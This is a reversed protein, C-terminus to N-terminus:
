LQAMLKNYVFLVSYSINKGFVKSIHLASFIHGIPLLLYIALRWIPKNVIKTFIFINFFPILAKWGAYGAKGFIKFWSILYLIFTLGFFSALIIFILGFEKTKKKSKSEKDGVEENTIAAAEGQLTGVTEIKFEAPPNMDLTVESDDYTEDITEGINGSLDRYDLLIPIVGESDSETFVHYFSYFLSDNKQLKAQNSTLLVKLDRILETSKFNIFVTDDKIALLSDYKNSSFLSISNLEPLTGDKTILIGNTAVSTSIGPIGAIDSYSVEFQILGDDAEHAPYVLMWSKELGVAGDFSEDNRTFIPLDIPENVNLQFTISDGPMAKSSDLENSSLMELTVVEPLTQDVTLVSDSVSGIISNGARDWIQAIFQVEVNEQFGEMAEFVEASISILKIDDIDGKGIIFPEGLDNFNDGQNYGARIQIRGGILTEDDLLPVGVTVHTSLSNWYRKVSDQGFVVKSLLILIITLRMGM